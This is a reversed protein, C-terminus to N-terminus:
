KAIEELKNVAEGVERMRDEYEPSYLNNEVELLCVTTLHNMVGYYHTALGFKSHSILDDAYKSQIIDQYENSMSRFTNIRNIERMTKQHIETEYHHKKEDAKLYKSM